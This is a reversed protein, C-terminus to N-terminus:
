TLKHYKYADFGAHFCYQVTTFGRKFASWFETDEELILCYASIHEPQLAIVERLTEEWIELTQGPLGFMLDLNINDFGAARLKEYSGIAAKVSHVRGITELLEDDLSLTTRM